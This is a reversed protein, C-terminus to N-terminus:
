EEQSMEDHPDLWEEESNDNDKNDVREDLKAEEREIDGALDLLTKSVEDNAAYSEPVDFQHLIVKIVLNLTHTFCHTQNAAGSFAVELKPPMDIMVDNLSANDYTIGLIQVYLTLGKKKHLYHCSVKNEIGFDELIKTFAVALNISSHSKGVKVLDLLFCMLLGNQEFYVTVVIYAKHNPSTWADTM